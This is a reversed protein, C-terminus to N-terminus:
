LICARTVQMFQDQQDLDQSQSGRLYHCGRKQQLHILLVGKVSAGFSSWRGNNLSEHSPFVEFVRDHPSDPCQLSFWGFWQDHKSQAECLAHDSVHIPRCLVCKWLFCGNNCTNFIIFLLNKLPKAKQSNSLQTLPLSLHISWLEKIHSSSSHYFGNNWMWVHWFVLWYFQAM